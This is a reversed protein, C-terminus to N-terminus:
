DEHSDRLLLEIRRQVELKRPGLASEWLV